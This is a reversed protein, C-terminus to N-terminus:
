EKYESHCETCSKYVRTLGEDFQPYNDSKAAAVMKLSAEMMPNAHNLFGEDDVYGYGETTIIKSIAALLHAEEIVKEKESKLADASGVNSKLWKSAIDARKMLDGMSAVDSLPKKEDADAIGAPLSGNMIVIMQEYPVQTERFSKAGRKLPEASIGAALDRLYKANKKWGVDEPHETVISALAALTATFTPIELYSNNYTGVSQMNKTLRNRIGKVHAELVPMPIITKWDIGGTAPADPTTATKMEGTPAPTSPTAAVANGPLSVPAVAQTNGAVSLPNDFWVDYPIGDIMKRGDQKKDSKKPEAQATQTVPTAPASAPTNTTQPQAPPTAPPPSGGCGTFLLLVSLCAYPVVASGLIPKQKLRNAPENM